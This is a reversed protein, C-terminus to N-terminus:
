SAGSQRNNKDSGNVFDSTSVILFFFINKKGLNIYLISPGLRLKLQEEPVHTERSHAAKWGWKM